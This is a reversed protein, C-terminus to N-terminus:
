TWSRTFCRYYLHQTNVKDILLRPYLLESTGSQVGCQVELSFLRLIHELTDKSNSQFITVIAAKCAESDGKVAVEILFDLTKLLNPM